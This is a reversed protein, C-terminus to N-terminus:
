NIKRIAHKVEVEVDRGYVNDGLTLTIEIKEAASPSTTPVNNSAFYDIEFDLVNESLVSDSRVCSGTGVNAEPCTTQKALGLCTSTAPQCPDGTSRDISCLDYTPTIVRKVLRQYRSDPGDEVFYIINNIAATNSSVASTACPNLRRRIINRDDDARASDLAVEYIILTQPTTDYTWEYVSPGTQYEATQPVYPDSLYVDLGQGYEITFLLEDQLNTLLAQGSSRLDARASEALVSGYQNFLVGVLYVIIIAAIPLTVLMEVITLGRQENRLSTM